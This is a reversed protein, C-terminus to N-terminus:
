ITEMASGPYLKKAYRESDLYVSLLIWVRRDSKAFINATAMQQKDM